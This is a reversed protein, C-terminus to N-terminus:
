CLMNYVIYLSYISLDSLCIEYLKKAHPERINNKLEEVAAEMAAMASPQPVM